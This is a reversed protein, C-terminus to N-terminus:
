TPAKAMLRPITPQAQEPGLASYGGDVTLDTGTIFSADDSCLFLVARAVEEPDGARGLVHYDAAVADVHARDGGSLEDM